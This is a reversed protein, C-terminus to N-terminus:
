LTASRAKADEYEARTAAVLEAVSQLADIGSVSHGAAWINTWRKTHGEAGGGYLRAAEVPTVQEDLREPDLGAAVISPRLMNAQLGSFARTLMVDDASSALLMQKYAPSALSEQTAIFKTGMYALDCGLARAAWLATGDSIGGALVIPGDYFARVARVFAFGNLWGSNGGAGATLLVLGDAGAAIAKRAHEISGVDALVLCGVSHLPEVVAAPSGVSTILMEPAHRLLVELDREMRPQRIILNPCYPASDPQLSGKIRSLWEDLEEPTRANATPFAGIVGNRCAAIALGPGSVTFMPACILPLALRDTIRRPLASLGGAQRSPSSTSM